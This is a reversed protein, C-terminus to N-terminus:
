AGANEAWEGFRKFLERGLLGHIMIQDGHGVNRGTVPLPGISDLLIRNNNEDLNDKDFIEVTFYSQSSTFRYSLELAYPTNDIVWQLMSCISGQAAIFPKGAYFGPELGSGMVPPGEETIHATMAALDLGEIM